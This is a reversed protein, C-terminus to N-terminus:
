NGVHGQALDNVERSRRKKLHFLLSPSYPKLLTKSNSTVLFFCDVNLLRVLPYKWKSLLQGFLAISIWSSHSNLPSIEPIQWIFFLTRKKFYTHAHTNCPLPPKSTFLKKMKRTVWVLLRPSMASKKRKWGTDLENAFGLPETLM